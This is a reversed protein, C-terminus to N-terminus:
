RYLWYVIEIDYLCDNICLAGTDSSVHTHTVDEMSYYRHLSTIDVYTGYVKM